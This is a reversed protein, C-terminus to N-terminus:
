ATKYHKYKDKESSQSSRLPLSWPQKEKWSGWCKACNRICLLHEVYGPHFSSIHPFHTIELTKILSLIPLPLGSTIYVFIPPPPFLTLTSFCLAPVLWPSIWSSPALCVQFLPVSGFAPNVKRTEVGSVLGFPVNYGFSHTKEMSSPNQWKFVNTRYFHKSELFLLAPPPLPQQASPLSM